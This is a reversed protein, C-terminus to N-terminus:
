RQEGTWQVWWARTRGRVKTHGIRFDDDALELEECMNEATTRGEEFGRPLSKPTLVSYRQKFDLFPVRNPFGQRVIRIGTTAGCLCMGCAQTLAGRCLGPAPRPVGELVGNCRLQHLVLPADIEGSRKKHNPIICRVFHPTTAGLTGMLAALQEKYLQGVTRFQGGKGRMRSTSVETWLHKMFANSSEKLLAEVSENIPDKNKVLWDQTTYPVEGAYHKIAFDGKM